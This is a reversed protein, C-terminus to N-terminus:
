SIVKSLDRSKPPPGTQRFVRLLATKKGFDKCRTKRRHICFSFLSLFGSKENVNTNIDKSCTKITM